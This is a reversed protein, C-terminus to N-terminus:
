GCVFYMPMCEGVFIIQGIVRLWFGILFAKEMIKPTNDLWFYSDKGPRDDILETFFVAKLACPYYMQHMVILSKGFGISNKSCTAASSKFTNRQCVM